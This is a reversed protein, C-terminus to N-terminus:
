EISLMSYKQILVQEECYIHTDMLEKALEKDQRKIAEYIDRHERYLQMPDPLEKLYELRYRYTQEKFNDMVQILQQNGTTEFILEHFCVDNEIIKRIDRSDAAYYFNGLVTEFKVFSDVTIRECALELAMKELFIRVELVDRLDKEVIEAVKAGHRPTMFALGELELKRIAERVPTRSVRFQDALSVERLREGPMLDGKLIAWRLNQFIVNTLSIQENIELKLDQIM